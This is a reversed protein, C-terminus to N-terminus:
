VATNKIRAALWSQKGALSFPRYMERKRGKIKYCYQYIFAIISQYLHHHHSHLCLINAITTGWTFTSHTHTHSHTRTGSIQAPCLWVRVQSCVAPSDSAVCHLSQRSLWCSFWTSVTFSFPKWLCTQIKLFVFGKPQFVTIICIETLMRTFRKYM